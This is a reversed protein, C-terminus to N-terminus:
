ELIGKLVNEFDFNENNYFVLDCNKIYFEDPKQAGIRRQAEEETLSDREMIRRKRDKRDALIGIMKDCKVGSELLTAGDICVVESKEEEIRNYIDALIYKHTIEDLKKLMNEDSFVIQALAKRNLEGEKLIREGFFAVAELLCPKGAAMIERAIVDCDIVPIGNQRLLGSIYSKGCGSGGTIGVVKKNQMM